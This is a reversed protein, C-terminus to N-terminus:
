GRKPTGAWTAAANFAAGVGWLGAAVTNYRAATTEDQEAAAGFGFGAAAANFVGGAMQLGGSVKKWGTSVGPRDPGRYAAVGAGAGAVGAAAWSASSLWSSGASSAAGAVVNFMDAATNFGDAASNIFKPAREAVSAAAGAVGSAAWSAGSAINLVTNKPSSAIAVGAAALDAGHAVLRLAAAGYDWGTMPPALQQAQPAPAPQQQAPVAAALGAPPQAPQHQAPAFALAPAAPQIDLAVHPAAQPAAQPALRPSQQRAVTVPTAPRATAPASGTGYTHVSAAALRASESSSMNKEGPHTKIFGIIRPWRCDHISFVTM